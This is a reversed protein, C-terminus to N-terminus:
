MCKISPIDRPLTGTTVNIVKEAKGFINVATCKYVGGDENTVKKIVLLEGDDVYEYKTSPLLRLGNRSWTYNARPIANAQCTLTAQSNNLFM